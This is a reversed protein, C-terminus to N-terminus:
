TPESEAENEPLRQAPTRTASSLSSDTSYEFYYEVDGSEPKHALDEIQLKASLTASTGLVASAPQTEGRPLNTTFTPCPYTGKEWNPTCESIRSYGYPYAYDPRCVKESGEEVMEYCRVVTYTYRWGPELTGVKVEIPHQSNGNCPQVPGWQPSSPYWEESRYIFECYEGEQWGEGRARLTASSIGVNTPAIAEFSGEALAPTAGVTAQLTALAALLTLTASVRAPLARRLLSRSSM